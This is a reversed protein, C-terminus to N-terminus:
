EVFVDTIIYRRIANYNREAILDYNDPSPIYDIFITYDPKMSKIRDKWMCKNVVRPRKLIKQWIGKLGKDYIYEATPETSLFYIRLDKLSENEFIITKALFRVHAIKANSDCMLLLTNRNESKAHMLYEKLQKYIETNM